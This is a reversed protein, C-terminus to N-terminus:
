GLVHQLLNDPGKGSSSPVPLDEIPASLSVDSSKATISPLCVVVSPPLEQLYSLQRWQEPMSHQWGMAPTMLSKQPVFVCGSKVAVQHLTGNV